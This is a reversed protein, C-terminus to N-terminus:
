KWEQGPRCDQEHLNVHIRKGKARLATVGRVIRHEPGFMRTLWAYAEDPSWDCDSAREWRGMGLRTSDEVAQGVIGWLLTTYAWEGGRQETLNEVPEIVASNNANRTYM